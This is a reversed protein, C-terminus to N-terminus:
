FRWSFVVKLHFSADYETLVTNITTDTSLTPRYLDCDQSVLPDRDLDVSLGPDLRRTVDPDDVLVPSLGEGSVPDSGCM